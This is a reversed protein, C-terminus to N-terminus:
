ATSNVRDTFSAWAMAPLSLMGAAPNKSDRIGDVGRRAGRVTEPPKDLYAADDFLEIYVIHDGM